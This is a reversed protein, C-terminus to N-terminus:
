CFRRVVSFNNARELAPQFQDRRNRRDLTTIMSLDMDTPASPPDRRHRSCHRSGCQALVPPAPPMPKHPSTTGGGLFARSAMLRRLSHTMRLYSSFDRFYFVWLRM